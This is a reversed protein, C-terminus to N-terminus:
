CMNLNSGPTNCSAAIVRCFADCVVQLNVGYGQKHGNFYSRPNATDRLSRGQIRIFLGDIAGVVHSFIAPASSRRQFFSAREACKSADDLDFPLALAKCNNIAAITSWVIQYATNLAVPAMDLLDLIQGGALYRLTIALRQEPVIAM